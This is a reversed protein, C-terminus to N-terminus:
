VVSEQHRASSFKRLSQKHDPVFCPQGRDSEKNQEHNLIQREVIEEHVIRIVVHVVVLLEIEELYACAASRNPRFRVRPM